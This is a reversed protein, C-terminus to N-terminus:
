RFGRLFLFYCDNYHHHFDQFLHTLSYVDPWQRFERGPTPPFGWILRGVSTDKATAWKNLRLLFANWLLKGTKTIPLQCCSTQHPSSPERLYWGKKRKKKKKPIDLTVGIFSSCLLSLIIWLHRLSISVAAFSAQGTQKGM